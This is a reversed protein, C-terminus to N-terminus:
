GTYGFAQRAMEILAPDADPLHKPVSAELREAVHTLVAIRAAKKNNGDFVAWPAWRTDTQKFMAQM